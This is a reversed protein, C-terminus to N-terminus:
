SQSKNMVRLLSAESQSVASDTVTIIGIWSVTLRVSFPLFFSLSVSLSLSFSPSPALSLSLSLVVPSRTSKQNIFYLSFLQRLAGRRPSRPGIRGIPPPQDSSGSEPPASGRARPNFVIRRGTCPLQWARHGRPVASSLLAWSLLAWSLGGCHGSATKKRYEVAQTRSSPRPVAAPTGRGCHVASSGSMCHSKKRPRAATAASRKTNLRRGRPLAGSSDPLEDPAGPLRPAGLRNRKRYEIATGGHGLRTFTSITTM